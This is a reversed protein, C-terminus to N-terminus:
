QVFQMLRRECSQTGTIAQRIARRAYAWAWRSLEVGASPLVNFATGAAMSIFNESGARSVASQIWRSWSGRCATFLRGVDGSRANRTASGVSM